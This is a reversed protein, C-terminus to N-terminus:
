VGMCSQSARATKKRLFWREALSAGAQTTEAPGEPGRGALHTRGEQPEGVLEGAVVTWDGPSVWLTWVSSALEVIRTTLREEDERCRAQYRQTSRAQRVVRCARRESVGFRECALEM